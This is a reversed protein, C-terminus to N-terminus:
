RGSGESAEAILTALAAGPDPETMFREGVLFADYGEGRLRRVDAGSRIGSEAVAVVQDPIAEVLHAFAGTDVALTKLNRSNVGITDAGADLATRVEDLSHAEVLPLLGQARASEILRALDAAPLAAVILLVADAGLARAEVVQYETVVFDKRLVPTDVTQRVAELHGAAGDFFSAETLVSIGAAGARAYSAAIAVPDYSERLIGKSPSRRKCEAIVRIGDAALSARFAAGRPSKASARRGIEALSTARAREDANRRAGAVIAELM